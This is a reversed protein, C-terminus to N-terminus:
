YEDLYGLGSSRAVELADSVLQRARALDEVDTGGSLLAYARELISYVVGQRSSELRRLLSRIRSRAVGVYHEALMSPTLPLGAFAAPVTVSYFVDMYRRRDSLIGLATDLAVLALRLEEVVSGSRRAYLRLVLLTGVAALVALVGMVILSTEM